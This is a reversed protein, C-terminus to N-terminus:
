LRELPQGGRASPEYTQPSPEGLHAQKTPAIQRLLPRHHEHTVVGEHAQVVGWQEQVLHVAWAACSSRCSTCRGRPTTGRAM